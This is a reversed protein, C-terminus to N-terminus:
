AGSRTRRRLLRAYFGDLDPGAPATRLAGDADVLDAAPGEPELPRAELGPDGELVAEVVQENEEPETSCTVYLLAGGVALAEAARGLIARQLAALAPLRRPTIRWKIEPNRRITGLGSCPADVLVRDFTGRAPVPATLDAAVAWVSPTGASGARRRCDVLARPSRDLALVPRGPAAEALQVAKGGRGACADLVMAGGAPLLATVLQAAESRPTVWGQQHPRTELPNGELVRLAWPHWRSPETLVGEEALAARALEPEAHRPHVQLAMPAPELSQALWREGADGHRQRFRDLLWRPVQLEEARDNGPDLLRGGDRLWARLVGNVLGAARARWGKVAEVTSDLAAHPPVSHLFAVQYAGVLLAARVEPDLGRWGRRVHPSLARELARQRRLAGYVIETALRRDRSDLAARTLEVDLRRDSRGGRLVGALARLAVARSATGRPDSM